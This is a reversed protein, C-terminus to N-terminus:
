HASADGSAGDGEAAATPRRLPHPLIPLREHEGREVLLELGDVLLDPSTIQVDVTQSLIGDMGVESAFGGFTGVPLRLREVRETQGVARIRRLARMSAPALVAGRVLTRKGSADIRHV